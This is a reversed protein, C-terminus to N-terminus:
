WGKMEEGRDGIRRRRRIGRGAPAGLPFSCSTTNSSSSALEVAETSDRKTWGRLQTRAEAHKGGGRSEEDACAAGVGLIALVPAAAAALLDEM